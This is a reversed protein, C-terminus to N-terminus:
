IGEAGHSYKVPIMKFSDYFYKVDQTTQNYMIVIGCRARESGCWDISELPSTENKGYYFLWKMHECNTEESDRKAVFENKSPIGNLHLSEDSHDGSLNLFLDEVNEFYFSGSKWFVNQYFVLFDNFWIGTLSIKSNEAPYLYTGEGQRQDEFWEGDYSSQDQWVM